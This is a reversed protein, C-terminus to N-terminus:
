DQRGQARQSRRLGRDSRFRDRSGPDEGRESSGAGRQRGDLGGLGPDDHGAGIHIDAERRPIERTELEIQIGEFRATKFQRRQREVCPCIM